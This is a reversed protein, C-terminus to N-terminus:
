EKPRFQYKPAIEVTESQIMYTVLDKKHLQRIFFESAASRISPIPDLNEPIMLKHTMEDKVITVFWKYKDEGCLREVCINEYTGKNNEDVSRCIHRAVLDIAAKCDNWRDDFNQVPRLANQLGKLYQIRSEHAKIESYCINISRNIDTKEDTDSM